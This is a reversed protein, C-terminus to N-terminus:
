DGVSSRRARRPFAQELVDKVFEGVQPEESVRPGTLNLTAIENDAVFDWLAQARGEEGSHVYLSPKNNKM